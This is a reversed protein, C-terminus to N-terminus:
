CRLVPGPSTPSSLFEPLIKEHFDVHHDSRKPARRQDEVNGVRLRWNGLRQRGHGLDYAMMM